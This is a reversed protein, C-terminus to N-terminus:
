PKATGGVTQSETAKPGRPPAAALARAAAEAVPGPALRGLDREPAVVVEAAPGWPRYRGPEGPGFVTVTPTAVAAAMHGLGSDNGVLLACRELVAAAGLLGTRGALDAVPLTGGLAAAVAATRERDGPGGVLVVGAFRPALARALEAFREAPWIKPPWNAGPALALLPGEPLGGLLAAALRRDHEALWVRAPPPPGDLLDAVVGLHAEAAHPGLPRAGRRTRRERARVLWALLETRLDVALAYRRRRLRRLLALEARWGARKRRLLTEGLYPCRAFLEASRPDAVLDVRAQPFRRHVAELAPTTLVADGINSLTVFLVREGSM